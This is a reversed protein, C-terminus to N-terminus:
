LHKTPTLQKLVSNVDAELDKFKAKDQPNETWDEMVDLGGSLFATRCAQRRIKGSSTKPISGTKILVTAFIDLGHQGIVAQRVNGVIEQVNLKRLYSREVEQVIVLRESGKFDISFAAGSSPKLAPHSNEVTLEIDQPYHNQGRIIIVDKLRGTIFLEGDQLFGLDGTRFFPVSTASDSVGTDALYAHFTKETEEAQNWYGQAVSPGAVWIEGVQEPACMTLSQPDVIVVKQDAPSQGCGVITQIDGRSSHQKVIRNQELAAKEVNCTIPLATKEGGSVILTTEAMGYCPYFAEPRFGCPAFTSAFQELTEARVPEAGTFAVEWSSLDLTALQEPTVKRICLDYAFNPGGSTTAKYHSIAQLWRIPKQLFDVPSMLICPVGLYLPQLVNGILGMDHFVPLWGVVITKNTHGFAKEIMRENHLLNGHTIMVGKPTGTSGSTYQLFALTNNTLEQPQWAQALDNSLEDTALWHLGSIELDEQNLGSQLSDLISKSTLVIKAQADAAIAQLRSLKQNRRPPYAPVAIVGAYLCGFFAAIFDLGPQYLLLAREGGLNLAQLSAAIAQAQVHLERYTLSAAETDTSQLFTYAKQESQNQARYILLEVLTSFHPPTILTNSYVSM